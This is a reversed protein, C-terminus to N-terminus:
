EGAEPVSGATLEGATGPQTLANGLRVVERALFDFDDRRSRHNTIGVHMVFDGGVRTGSVVALGQEQLEEVIQQNIIDLGADDVEPNIYRFCVINLTVPAVLELEEAREILLALYRAQDINQQILRGYKLAGHEKISMWTKLARFRRSLQYGYDTLWPLDGGTLGRGSGSRALYDPTLAFAEHHERDHAVLICGNEHPMYMWKHLDLALSDARELGAVLERTGPTIAAWAGFAGDVHLWLDEAACIDALANLDDVAGTNTTGAAGVVCFPSKGNQRDEAIAARLADPDIRFGGDVPVRRLARNGLGLLEVAKQVSSHIEQSAYLTMCGKGANVGDSRVDYGAKANRAVALGILNAASCGSTLLGSATAPYGLLEKLWDMVQKEVYNASHHDLDGASSNMTGALLEAFAGFVTGTGFIWGWFRPHINGIPYPLVYTLFEEYVQEPAQSHHPLSSAFHAKVQDPAHRWPPRDRLTMLYDVMDDVMRHGLARMADWDDPDLNEEVSLREDDQVLDAM